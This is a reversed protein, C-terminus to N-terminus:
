DSKTMRASYDWTMLRKPEISIITENESNRLLWQKFPTDQKGLFRDHLRELIGDRDKETICSREVRSCSRPKSQHGMQQKSFGM